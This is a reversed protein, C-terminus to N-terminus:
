LIVDGADFTAVTLGTVVVTEVGPLDIKLGQATNLSLAQV